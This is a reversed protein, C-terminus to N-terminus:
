TIEHPNHTSTVVWAANVSKQDDFTHEVRTLTRGQCQYVHNREIIGNIKWTIVPTLMDTDVRTLEEYTSVKLTAGVLPIHNYEIM